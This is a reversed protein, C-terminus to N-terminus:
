KTLPINAPRKHKWRRHSWLYYEPKERIIDEMKRIYALLIEKPEIEAPNEVLPIFDSEYRGRGTKRVQHFIVPQNTKSAIKEPGSFFPAERNLFNTWFKSTAPATQDAGLWLATPIGKRHFNLIMRMSENVAVCKAGWRERSHILFKEVAKNGRVPNYLMIGLHNAKKQVSSFWEWNNYHMALIIISKNQSYYKDILDMGKCSLRKELQRYSITRLKVIEMILDALHRYFKKAIIRIEEKTKDPFANSINEFIVNRRYRFIYALLIYLLDSIFYIFPLPMLSILYLFSTIIKNFIKTAFNETKHNDQNRKDAM